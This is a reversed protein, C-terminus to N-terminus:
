RVRVSSIIDNNRGTLRRQNDDIVACRGRFNYDECVQAQANGFVRISSIRDNFNNLQSYRQGPRVCFSSGQYDWDEYFCVRGGRNGPQPRFDGGNGISFSFGGPVSFSFNVDPESAQPRRPRERESETLYRASAWGDPGSKEVFCWNGRCERIDVDQGPRLVDVVGYNTGPGSRVNLTTTAQAAFASGTMLFASTIAAGAVAAKRLFTM